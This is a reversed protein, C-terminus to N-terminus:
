KKPCLSIVMAIAPFVLGSFSCFYPSLEFRDYFPYRSKM